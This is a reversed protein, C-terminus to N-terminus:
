HIKNRMQKRQSKIQIKALYFISVIIIIAILVKSVLENNVFNAVYGLLPLNYNVVGLVNNYHIPKPENEENSDAKLTFLQMKEDIEVVRRIKIELQENAIYTIPMNIKINQFNTKLTYVVSGQNFAPEMSNDNIVYPTYGFFRVGYLLSTIIILTFISVKMFISIKKRM